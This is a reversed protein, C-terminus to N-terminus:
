LGQWTRSRIMARKRRLVPAFRNTECQQFMREIHSLFTADFCSQQLRVLTTGQWAPSCACRNALAQAIQQRRGARQPLCHGQAVCVVVDLEHGPRAKGLQLPPELMPRRVNPLKAQQM